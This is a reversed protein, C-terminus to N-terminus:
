VGRPRCPRYHTHKVKLKISAKLTVIRRKCVQRKGFVELLETDNKKVVRQSNDFAAEAPNNTNIKKVSLLKQGHIKITEL